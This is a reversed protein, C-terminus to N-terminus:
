ILLAELITSFLIYVPRYGIGAGVPWRLGHYVFPFVHGMRLPFFFKWARSSSSIIILTIALGNARFHSLTQQSIASLFHAGPPPLLHLSNLQFTRIHVDHKPFTRGNHSSSSFHIISFQPCAGCILRRLPGCIAKFPGSPSIKPKKRRFHCFLYYLEIIIALVLSTPRFM